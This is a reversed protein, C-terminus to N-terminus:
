DWKTAKRGWERIIRQAERLNKARPVDVTRADHRDLLVVRRIGAEQAGVLDREYSSGVMVAEDADVQLRDLALRFVAPHPKVHGAEQATARTQLIGDLRSGELADEVFDPDADTVLGMQYGDHDLRLVIRRADPFIKSHRRRMARHEQRFWDEDDPGAKIGIEELMSGFVEKVAEQYPVFPTPEELGPEGHMREMLGLRFMGSLERPSMGTEYRSAVRRMTADLSRDEGTEDLLTGTFSFIVVPPDM